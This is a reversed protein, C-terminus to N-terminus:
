CGRRPLPPLLSHFCHIGSLGDSGHHAARPGYHSRLSYAPIAMPTQQAIWRFFYPQAEIPWMIGSFFLFSAVSGTAFAIFHIPNVSIATFMLGYALGSLNQLLLLVSVWFMSGNNEVNYYIVAVYLTAAISIFNFFTRIIFQAVILQTASVGASYTREFMNSIKELRMFYLGMLMSTAFAGYLLCGPIMLNTVDFLDIGKEFLPKGYVPKGYNIPFELLRPNMGADRLADQLFKELSSYISLATTALMVKNTYDMHFNLVNFNFTINEINQYFDPYLLITESFNAYFQVFGFIKKSDVDIRAQGADTYNKVHFFKPDLNKIFANSVVDQDEDIIGFDVEPLNGICACTTVLVIVPLCLWCFLMGKDRMIQIYFKRSIAWLMTFWDADMRKHRRFQQLGQTLWLIAAMITPYNHFQKEEVEDEDTYKNYKKKREIENMCLQYFADELKNVGLETIIKNPPEEALLYGKRLFGIMGAKKTEEIYHTTLLITSGENVMELLFDWIKERILPDVGVTPEDLIALKPKHIVACAFSVRRQQGGSLTEIVRDRDPIDLVEVLTNIRNECERDSLLFIKGFYHLMEYVTLNLNLAVDQPMYGLARGPVESGVSGPEKGFVKITGADPTCFGMICRLISTKGCGSPGILAYIGGAPVTLNMGTLVVNTKIGFGYTLDVDRVEVANRSRSLAPSADTVHPASSSPPSPIIELEHPPNNNPDSENSPRYQMSNTKKNFDRVDPDLETM